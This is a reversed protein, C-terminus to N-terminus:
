PVKATLVPTWIVVPLSPTLPFVYFHSNCNVAESLLKQVVSHRLIVDELQPHRVSPSSLVSNTEARRVWHRCRNFDKLDQAM